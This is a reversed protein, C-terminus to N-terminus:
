YLGPGIMNLQSDQSHCFKRIKCLQSEGFDESIDEPSMFIFKWLCPRGQSTHVLNNNETFDATHQRTYKFLWSYIVGVRPGIPMLSCVNQELLLENNSFIILSTM